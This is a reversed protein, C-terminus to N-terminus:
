WAPVKRPVDRNLTAWTTVEEPVVRESPIGGVLDSLETETVVGGARKLFRTRVIGRAYVDEDACFLQEIFLGHENLGLLRTHVDFRQFPRLSKRYSLTQGAVVPYWGTRKLKSLYGTRMMLDLRAVDMITPYKGNNMHGLLDLDTLAVRFPTRSTAWIDLFTRKGRNWRWRNRLQMILLRFYLNM